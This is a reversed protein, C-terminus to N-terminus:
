YPSIGYENHKFGNMRLGPSNYGALGNDLKGRLVVSRALTKSETANKPHGM